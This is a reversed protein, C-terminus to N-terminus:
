LRVLAEGVGPRLLIRNDFPGGEGRQYRRFRRVDPQRVSQTWNIAYLFTVSEDSITQLRPLPMEILKWEVFDLLRRYRAPARALAEAPPTSGDSATAARSREIEAVIEAQGGGPGSSQRLARTAWPRTHPWYLEVIKVALQRTTLLDPAAGDRAANELCLDLLALLVAYKYTATFRGQDLLDLIREALALPAHPDPNLPLSPIRPPPASSTDLARPTPTLHQPCTPELSSTSTSATTYSYLRRDRGWPDGGM